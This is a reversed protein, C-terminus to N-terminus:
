EQPIREDAYHIRVAALAADAAAATRAIVHGKRDTFAHQLVATDGPELRCLVDVVGPMAAAEALGTVADVVGGRGPVLFRISATGTAGRPARAPQGAAAAVVEDVLDRGAALLVLRPILGGALRPNIEVVHPPAGPPVRLEVHAPGRDLGAVRLADLTAARLAAAADAPIAAPFDHGLEVFYPEAGLHKRTVGVPEGDLVEVSFEPGALAQEVLVRDATALLEAAWRRAEAATACRRVGVSGSGLVPKVVVPGGITTAAAQADAATRCEAFRPAPLGAASAARRQAAKDRCCAVADPNPGPLGLREAVLAATHVFYESSTTIGAPRLEEAVATVTAVDTTDAVRTDLGLEAAYPYRAPDRALLLPRLGRRRAAVAFDRGTGTTNSEVLLFWAGSM